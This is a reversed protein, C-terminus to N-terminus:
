VWEWEQCVQVIAWAIRAITPLAVFPPSVLNANNCLQLVREREGEAKEQLLTLLDARIQGRTNVQQLKDLNSYIMRLETARVSENPLARTLQLIEDFIAQRETGELMSALVGLMQRRMNDDTVTLADRIAETLIMQQQIGETLHILVHFIGIREAENTIERVAQLTASFLHQDNVLMPALRILALSRINQDALVSAAQLMDSLFLRGQIGTPVIPFQYPSIIAGLVLNRLDENNIDQVGQLHEASDTQWSAEIPSHKPAKIDESYDQENTFLSGKEHTSKSIDQYRVHPLQLSELAASRSENDIITYAIKAAVSQLHQDHILLPAIHQLARSRADENLIIQTIKIADNILHQDHALLYTLSALVNDCTHEYTINHAGQFAEDLLAQQEGQALFPIAVVYVENRVHKYPIARTTQLASTLLYQDHVLRPVLNVLARGRDDEDAINRVAQLAEALVAQRDVEVLLPALNVLARSRDDEDAINRATQLAENFVAQRETGILLPTIAVFAFSRVYNSTINNASQLCAVLVSTQENGTFLPVLTKFVQCRSYEDAITYTIQLAENLLHHDPHLLPALTILLQSRDRENLDSAGQLAGELVTQRETGSLLPVLKTLAINRPYPETIAFAAQLAEALAVRQEVGTLLPALSVLAHSRHQADTIVCAAQLTKTLLERDNALMPLLDTLVKSRQAEDTIACVAQFAIGRLKGQVLQLATVVEDQKSDVSLLAIAMEAKRRPDAIRKTISLARQMTWSELGIAIAQAVLAPEYNTSLSNISSRILAFHVCDAIAAPDQDAEIQARTDQEAHDWALNLDTLYGDYLRNSQKVRKHMWNHNAFLGWLEDWRETAALHYALHDYLYGDDAVSAWSGPMKQRTAYADLLAGQVAQVEQGLERSVLLHLYDHLEVQWQDGQEHLTLLHRDSFVRIYRRVEKRALRHRSQWLVAIAQEPIREDPKFIALDLYALRLALLRNTQTDRELYQLSRKLVTFLGVPIALPRQSDELDDPRFEQLWM